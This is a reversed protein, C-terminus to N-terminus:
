CIDDDQAVNGHAMGVGCLRFEGCDIVSYEPACVLRPKIRGNRLGSLIGDCSAKAVRLLKSVFVM